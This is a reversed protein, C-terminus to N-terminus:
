SWLSISAAAPTTVSSREPMTLRTGAPLVAGRAALGPNASLVRETHGSTAGYYEHCVLDVTMGDRRIEIVEAM